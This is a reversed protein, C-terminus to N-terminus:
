ISLGQIWHVQTPLLQVKPSLSILLVRSRGQSSDWCDPPPRSIGPSLAALTDHGRRYGARTRQQELNAEAGVESFYHGEQQSKHFAKDAKM